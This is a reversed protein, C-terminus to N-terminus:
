NKPYKIEPLVENKAWNVPLLDKVDANEPRIALRMLVDQLYKEADIGNIQCTAFISYYAACWKAGAESGAFMWNKRGIALTRIIREVPNNDIPYFGNEIYRTLPKWHNLMYNVAEGVKRSPLLTFDPNMLFEKIEDLIKKSYLQRLQCRKETDADVKDAFRELRYLQGIKRLMKRCYDSKYGTDLAEKFKRRAHAMCNLVVLSYKQVPKNYSDCGDVMLVDGSNSGKLFQLAANGSRRHDYHFVAVFPGGPDNKGLGVWMRGDHHKGSVEPLRVKIPSEDAHKLFSRKYEGMLEYHIRRVSKYLYRLWSVFTSRTFWIGSEHFIQRQIRYLPLHYRYKSVIVFLLLSVDALGKPIPLVVPEAVSISYKCKPCGYVPRIHLIKKYKAPIRTIVTHEKRNIEVKENGCCDCRKEETSVDHIIEETQVMDPIVNRGPHRRRRTHEDITTTEFSEEESCSDMSAELQAFLEDMEQQVAELEEMKESSQGYKQKTLLMYREHLRQYHLMLEWTFSQLKTMEKPLDDKSKIASIDM